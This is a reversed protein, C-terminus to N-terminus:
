VGVIRRLDAFSAAVFDARDAVSPRAAFGTFAAFADAVDRMAVDTSGDGAALVRGPLRLSAVVDRKGTAVSLPSRADFGAYGGSDDFYVSVANVAAATLGSFEALPVIAERIGGSVLVTGVGAESWASIAERAGPAINSIYEAALAEVDDRTPRVLELRKAYVDELKIGGSMALATLHAVEAAVGAGRREALWDIGEIGSLTSDVDLVVTRFTSTERTM